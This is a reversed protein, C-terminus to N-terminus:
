SKREGTLQDIEDLLKVRKRTFATLMTWYDRPYRTPPCCMRDEGMVRMHNTVDALEDELRALRSDRPQADLREFPRALGRAALTTKLAYGLTSNQEETM